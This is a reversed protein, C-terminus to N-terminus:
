TVETVICLNQSKQQDCTAIPAAWLLLFLKITNKENKLFHMNIDDSIFLSHEKEEKWNNIKM